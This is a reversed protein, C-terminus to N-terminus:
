SAEARGSRSRGRIAVVVLDSSNDPDYPAGAISGYTAEVTFEAAELAAALDARRWARLRVEKAAQLELMREAGPRLELTAPYFWIHRDDDDDPRLLRLFVIEADQTPADRFNLPLHRIGRGLIREYNLVQVVLRGHPALVATTEGLMERLPGDELHPIVNGLCVALGFGASVWRSAETMDALVFSPGHSGFEGEYDRAKVIQEESRDLGVARYGRSAFHRVHEGTGCGLDLVSPDPAREIQERLFPWEREIREPWAILRRYNLRSYPSEVRSPM